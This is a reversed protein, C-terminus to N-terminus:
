FGLLVISSNLPTILRALSGLASNNPNSFKIGFNDLILYVSQTIARTTYVPPFVLIIIFESKVTYFVLKAKEIDALNM